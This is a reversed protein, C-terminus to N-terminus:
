LNLLFGIFITTYTVITNQCYGAEQHIYISSEPGIEQIFTLLTALLLLTSTAVACYSPLLFPSTSYSVGLNYCM